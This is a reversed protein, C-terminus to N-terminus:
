IQGSINQITAKLLTPLDPGDQVLEPDSKRIQAQQIPIRRFLIDSLILEAKKKVCKQFSFM